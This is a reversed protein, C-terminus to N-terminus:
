DEAAIGGVFAALDRNFREADELFPAHGIGDYVRLEANPVTSAILESSRLLVLRDKSGHIVLAPLQTASLVDNNDLERSFMALRVDHPVSMANALMVEYVDAEVPQATGLRLFERTGEIRPEIERAVINGFLELLENSLLGEASEGLNTGAGVFVLGGLEDDGHERLYDSIVVGGYSWGVLVPRALDLERIIAAIDAAWKATDNYQDADRPQDSGGHGRMDFTVLRFDDALTSNLQPQWSLHSQSFGHIFLIPTGDPNGTEYVHLSVGGGGRVDLAGRVELPEPTTASM